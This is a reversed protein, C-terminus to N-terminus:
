QQTNGTPYQTDGLVPDQSKVGDQQTMLMQEDLEEQKQRLRQDLAV